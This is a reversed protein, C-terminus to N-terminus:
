ASSADVHVNGSVPASRRRMAASRARAPYSTTQASPDVVIRARPPMYIAFPGEAAPRYGRDRLEPSLRREDPAGRFFVYAARADRRVLRDHPEYRVHGTSTAIVREDSEFSIRYALWYNALVRGVGESELRDVLPGIDTTVGGEHVEPTFLDQRELARLGVVSVALAIALGAAALGPRTLARGLLLAPIPALFVLYRPETTLFTFSSAAYLFPFAVAVAHLPELERPHRALLYAFGGLGLVLLAVGVVPGFVWDLSYPLRLGLWTPLVVAFLDWFRGLYTSEAGAVSEPVVANWGHRLNWAWWPAAGLLAAPVALWALRLVGPRRWVLWLIAPVALLWSQVTVWLGLGVAFGLAAADVRSDRERLRLALLLAALGIVLGTGFYGREKTSWWVLFPPWLWFLAAGIRAAPEGVTRRGVRWVLVAAVAFIAVSVLKLALVSSGVVAFVAATLLADQSGGYLAGWYFVSFEGEIVHRAMLGVIAEDADLTGLPSGLVWGRLAIGALVAAAVLADSKASLRRV